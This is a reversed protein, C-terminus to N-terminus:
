CYGRGWGGDGKAATLVELKGKTELRMSGLVEWEGINHASVLVM